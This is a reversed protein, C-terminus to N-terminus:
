SGPMVLGYKALEAILEEGSLIGKPELDVQFRRATGSRVASKRALAKLQTRSHEYYQHAMSMWGPAFDCVAPLECM